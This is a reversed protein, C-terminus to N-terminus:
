KGLKKKNKQILTEGSYKYCSSSDESSRENSRLDYSYEGKSVTYKKRNQYFWNNNQTNKKKLTTQQYEKFKQSVQSEVSRYAKSKELSSKIYEEVKQQHKDHYTPTEFIFKYKTEYDTSEDPSRYKPESSSHISICEIDKSM